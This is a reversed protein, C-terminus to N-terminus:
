HGSTLDLPEIIGLAIAENFLGVALIHEHVEGRNRHLPELREGFALLYLELNPLGLFAELRGVHAANSSRPGNFAPRSAGGAFSRQRPTRTKKLAPGEIPGVLDCREPRRIERAM